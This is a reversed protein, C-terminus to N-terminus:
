EKEDEILSITKEKTVVSERPSLVNGKVTQLIYTDQKKVLFFEDKKADSFLSKNEKEYLRVLRYNTNNLAHKYKSDNFDFDTVVELQVSSSDTEKHIIVVEFQGAKLEDKEKKRFEWRTGNSKMGSLFYNHYENVLSSVKERMEDGGHEMLAKYAFLQEYYAKM